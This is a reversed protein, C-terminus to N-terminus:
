YHYQFHWECQNWAVWGFSLSIGCSAGPMGHSVAPCVYKHLIIFCNAHQLNGCGPTFCISPSLVKSITQYVEHQYNILTYLIINESYLSGLFTIDSPLLVRTRSFNQSNQLHRFIWWATDNYYLWWHLPCASTYTFNMFHVMFFHRSVLSSTYRARNCTHEVGM